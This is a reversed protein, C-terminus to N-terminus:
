LQWTAGLTVIYVNLWKSMTKVSFDKFYGEGQKSIQSRIQSFRGDVCM